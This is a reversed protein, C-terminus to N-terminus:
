KDFIYEKLFDMKFMKYKKWHKEGFVPLISKSPSFEPVPKAMGSNYQYVYYLGGLSLGARVQSAPGTWFTSCGITSIM